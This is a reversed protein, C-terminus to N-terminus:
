ETIECWAPQCSPPAIDFDCEKMEALHAELASKMNAQAQESTEGTAICGAIDPCFVSYGNATKEIVILYKM